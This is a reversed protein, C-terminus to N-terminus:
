SGDVILSSVYVIPAQPSVLPIWEQANGPRNLSIGPVQVHCSTRFKKQPIHRLVMSRFRNYAANLLLRKLSRPALTDVSEPRKYKRIAIINQAIESGFASELYHPYPDDLSFKLNGQDLTVEVRMRHPEHSCVIHAPLSRCEAEYVRFMRGERPSDIPLFLRQNDCIFDENDISQSAYRSSRLLAQSEHESLCIEEGPPISQLAAMCEMMFAIQADRCTYELGLFADDETPLEEHAHVIKRLIDGVDDDNQALIARIKEEFIALRNISTLTAAKEQKKRELFASGAELVGTDWRGHQKTEPNM